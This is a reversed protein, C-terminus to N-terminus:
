FVYLAYLLLGRSGDMPSDFVSYVGSDDLFDLHDGVVLHLSRNDDIEYVLDARVDIARTDYQRTGQVELTLRDAIEQRYGLKLRELNSSIRAGRRAYALEVPDHLRALHLRMSVRGLGGPDGHAHRYPGSLPVHESKFEDLRLELQQVLPTQRLLRRLPQNLLGPGHECLWAAAEERAATESQLEIGPSKLDRMQPELIPTGLERQVRRRDEGMLNDLFQLVMRAEVEQVAAFDERDMLWTHTRPDKPRSPTARRPPDEGRLPEVFVPESTNGRVEADPALYEVGVRPEPDFNPMPAVIGERLAPQERPTPRRDNAPQLACGAVCGLLAFLLRM